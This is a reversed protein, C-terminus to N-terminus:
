KKGKAEWPFPDPTRKLANRATKYSDFGLGAYEQEACIDRNTFKGSAWAQQIRKKPEDLKSAKAIGGKRAAEKKAKSIIDSAKKDALEEIVSQNAEIVSNAILEFFDARYRQILNKEAKALDLLGAFLPIPELPSFCARLTDIFPINDKRSYERLRDLHRQYLLEAKSM